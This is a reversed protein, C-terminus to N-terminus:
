ESEVAILEQLITKDNKYMEFAGINAVVFSRLYDNPGEEHNTTKSKNNHGLSQITRIPGWPFGWWGLLLTITIAKGNAKDLCDPCAIKLKRNQITVVLISITSSIFGANLPTATSGWEPCHLRRVLNCYADIEELSHQKNQAQVADAAATGLKRKELEQQVIQQAEPTLGAADHLAIRMLEDNDLHQYYEQVQETDLGKSM